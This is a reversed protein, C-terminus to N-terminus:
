GELLRQLAAAHEAPDFLARIPICFGAIATSCVEGSRAKTLLSYAEGALVFQELTQTDPDILWYEGVGHAAYDAFKVGRDIAETSPSLVEAVFDPAPFQMQDPSFEAAREATFFCIDPEYDNRTLTILLKEFGVLGLRHKKVYLRLLMQLDQAAESHRLKVPSPFIVEGNIFEVKREEDIQAYFEARRQQEAALLDRIQEYYHVLQPSQILEDLVTPM